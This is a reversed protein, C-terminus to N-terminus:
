SVSLSIPKSSVIIRYHQSPSLQSVLNTDGAVCNFIVFNDRTLVCGTEVRGGERGGEEREERSFLCLVDGM